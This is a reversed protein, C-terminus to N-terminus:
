AGPSVPSWDWGGIEFLEGGMGGLYHGPCFRPPRGHTENNPNPDDDDDDDDAAAAATMDYFDMSNWVVFDWLSGRFDMTVCPGGYFSVSIGLFGRSIWPFFVFLVNFVWIFDLFDMSKRLFDMPNRCFGNSKILGPPQARSSPQPLSTRLAQIEPAQFEPTQVTLLGRQSSPRGNLGGLGLLKIPNKYGM